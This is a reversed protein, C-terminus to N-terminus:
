PLLPVWFSCKHNAGFTTIPAVAAPVLSQHQDSAVTYGPWTPPEAGTPAGRKAFTPWYQVMTDALAQQDASFGPFPILTNSMDFVYQLEAAHYAGYPFSVPPLFRQPANPDNFEYAFTPTFQSLLGSATRANCAFIADTGLAG